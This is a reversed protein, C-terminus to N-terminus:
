AHDLVKNCRKCVIMDDMNVQTESHRCIIPEEVSMRPKPSSICTLEDIKKLIFDSMNRSLIGMDNSSFIKGSAQAQRDLEKFYNIIENRVKKETEGEGMDPPTPTSLLLIKNKIALCAAQFIPDRESDLHSREFIQEDIWKLLEKLKDAPLYNNM